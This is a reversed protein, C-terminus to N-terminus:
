VLLMAVMGFASDLNWGISFRFQCVPNFDHFSSKAESCAIMFWWGVIVVWFLGDVSDLVGVLFFSM